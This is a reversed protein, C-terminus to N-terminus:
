FVKGRGCGLLYSYEVCSSKPPMEVVSASAAMLRAELAPSQVGDSSNPATDRNLTNLAFYRYQNDM